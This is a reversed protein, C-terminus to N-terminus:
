CITEVSTENQHQDPKVASPLSFIHPFHEVVIEPTLYHSNLATYNLLTRWFRGSCILVRQYAPNGVSDQRDPIMLTFGFSDTHGRLKNGLSDFKSLM